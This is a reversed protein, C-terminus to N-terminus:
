VFIEISIKNQRIAQNAIIDALKIVKAGWPAKKLQQVYKNESEKENLRTEKTVSSVIDAVKKGWKKNIDDYDTSTDEITDHLWGACLIDKDTIGLKELRKLVQKLHKFYPTKCDKRFQNEHKEKAFERAQRVKNM